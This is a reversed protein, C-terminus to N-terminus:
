SKHYPHGELIREARYIQEVLILLAMEHTFTMKSLSLTKDVSKKVEESLGFAGGIIFTIDPIQEIIKSFSVSDLQEGEESLAISYGSVKSLLKEGEVKKIFEHNTGKEDKITLIRLNRIKKRHDEIEPSFRNKGIRLITIM